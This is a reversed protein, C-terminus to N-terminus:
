KRSEKESAIVPKPEYKARIQFRNIGPPFGNPYRCYKVFETINKNPYDILPDFSREVTSSIGGIIWMPATFMCGWGNSVSSLMGLFVLGGIGHSHSEYKVLRASIIDPVYVETLMNGALVFLTDGEVAILEGKIKSKGPYKACTIETWGGYTDEGLKEAEPLWNEPPRTIACGQLLMFILLAAYKLNQM